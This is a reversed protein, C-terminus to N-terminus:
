IGRRPALDGAPRAHCPLRCSVEQGGQARHIHRAKTIIVTWSFMSLLILVVVTILGETTANKIAFVFSNAAFLPQVFM